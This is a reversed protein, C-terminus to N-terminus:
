PRSVIYRAILVLDTNNVIGDGNFDALFMQREDFEVLKVLYRAIMIVDRNDVEGDGTVDGLLIVNLSGPVTGLEVTEANAGTAGIIELDIDYYGGKPQNFKLTLVVEDDGFGSGDDTWVVVMQTEPNFVFEYKSEVSDVPIDSVISATFSSLANMHNTVTVAADEGSMISEESIELRDTLGKATVFFDAYNQGRGVNQLRFTVAGAPLYYTGLEGYAYNNWGGSNPAPIPENVKEGNIFINVSDTQESNSGYNAGFAYYGAEEVNFTFEVFAIDGDVDTQDLYGIHFYDGNSQFKTQYARRSFEAPEFRTTGEPAIDIVRYQNVTFDPCRMLTNLIYVANEELTERVLEGSQVATRLLSLDGSSMKVNNGANVENVIGSNNGWDTMILGQWGWENRLIGHLLEYNEATQTGNLWNYSSMICGPNAEKVAIEFGRLYIERLARETVRSDSSRRNLEKNNACFHKLTVMPGRSQVGTSLAAACNGAVLPDESYYEFNRGCMPSRHINMGPALWMDVMSKIAETGV